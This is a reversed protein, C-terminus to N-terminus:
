KLRSPSEQRSRYAYYGGGAVLLLVIGGAAILAATQVFQSDSAEDEAREANRIANEFNGNEYASIASELSQQGESSGSREVADRASDIAQRAEKSDETYHHVEYTDIEHETGGPRVETFSAATFTEQPDYSFNEVEPTTGVVEVEVRNTGGDTDIDEEFTADTYTEQRIQTDAQDYVTVTWTVNTLNTEGHLTWENADSFLDTVQVTAQFDAGVESEEPADSSTEVAAAGGALLSVALLVAVLPALARSTM